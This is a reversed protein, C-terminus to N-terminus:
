YSLGLNTKLFSLPILSSCRMLLFQIQANKSEDPHGAPAWAPAGMSPDKGIPHVFLDENVPHVRAQKQSTHPRLCQSVVEQSLEGRITEDERQVM